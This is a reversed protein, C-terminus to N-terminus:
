KVGTTRDRRELVAILVILLVLVLIGIATWIPHTYWAGQSDQTTVDIRADQATALLPKIFRM